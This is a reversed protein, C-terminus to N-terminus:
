WALANPTGGTFRFTTARGTAVDVRHARQHEDVVFLSRGAPDRVLETFMWQLNGGGTYPQEYLVRQRRGTGADLEIIQTSKGRSTQNNAILYVHLGDASLVPSTYDGVFATQWRLVSRSAAALDRGAHTDLIWIGDSRNTSGDLQYALHRGDAAWSLSSVRGTVTSRFVTRRKTSLDLVDIEPTGDPGAGPKAVPFAVRAGDPSAALYILDSAGSQFTTVPSLSRVRGADDIGLRYLRVDSAQAALYFVQPDATASMASWSTGAPPKVTAAVQGTRADRVSVGRGQVNAIFYKAPAVASPTPSPRGASGHDRAPGILIGATVILLVAAAMAIPAYRQGWRRPVRHVREDSREADEEPQVLAAVAALADRLQEEPTTM